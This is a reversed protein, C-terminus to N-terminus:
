FSNLLFKRSIEPFAKEVQGSRAVSLFFLHHFEQRIGGLCISSEGPTQQFHYNDQASSQAQASAVLYSSGKLVLSVAQRLNVDMLYHVSPPVSSSCNVSKKQIRQETQQQISLIPMHPCKKTIFEKYSKISSAIIQVM